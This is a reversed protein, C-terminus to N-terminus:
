SAERASCAPKFTVQDFIGSSVNERSTAWKIKVVSTLSSRMDYITDHDQFPRLWNRHERINSSKFNEAYFELGQEYKSLDWLTNTIFNSKWKFRVIWKLSKFM